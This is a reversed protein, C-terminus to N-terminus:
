ILLGGSGDEGRLAILCAWRRESECVDRCIEPWSEPTNIPATPFLPNADVEIYTVRKEMGTDLAIRRKSDM